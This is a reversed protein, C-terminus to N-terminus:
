FGFWDIFSRDQMEPEVREVRPVRTAVVHVQAVVLVELHQWPDVLEVLKVQVGLPGVRGVDVCQPLVVAFEAVFVYRPLELPSTM